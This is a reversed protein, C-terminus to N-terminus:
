GGNPKHKDKEEKKANPSSEEDWSNILPIKEHVSRMLERAQEPTRTIRPTLFVMLEVERSIKDKKKFAWGLVPISGLGPTKRTTDTQQRQIIGGLVATEGDRVMLDTKFNRTDLIAGGFLTEGERINSSETRIRLHVENSSNIRPTVELIIGVDRYQFTDNRGGTETNLSGSIFPVQAGVFLKGLENDAINLQPQALIKGDANKRLFQILVTVDSNASFVGSRLAGTGPLGAFVKKFETVADVKIGNDLDEGTFANPDSSYRVGLKDRFDSSVEIIRAEILVQPTPADLDNILKLIEPFYHLNSTIILSNSRRDPVVRVKGILDSIPRQAGTEGPRGFQGEQQGGLWPFYADEKTELEIGFSNQSQYNNSGPQQIQNNQQQQQQPQNVQRLPPSGGKAFLVNIGSAITTANAFNLTIRMTTEGAQSPSDLEKLVNEIASLNEPSNSTIIISNSYPEATIKVKGYLKSSRADKDSSDQMPFGYPDWYTRSQNPKKLFLENLVDAIDVASVYKMRYIKPALSTDSIPEDLTKILSEVDPIVAPPAQVIVTNRRRDAVVNIKKTDRGGGYGFIYYPYRSNSNQDQNLDQLQKAVDEADANKLEFPRIVKEQAEERDLGAILKELSKFNEETSLVILSNSRNNSSVEMRDRPSKGTMKQLLPQMERVLDEASVNKLPLVRITFDQPKETDLIELLGKIESMKSKPAVVILQNATKDPWIKISATPSGTSTPGSPSPSPTPSSDGMPMPIGNVIRMGSSRGSSSSSSSGSSSSGGSSNVQANLIQGLLGGVEEAESFKLRFFEVSIDSSSPVDLEKILDSALRLNDTYDTIILQNNREVIEVAAKDSLATRIKQQVDGPSVNKLTFIRVLKQRGEPLKDSDAFEPTSKPESGEPVILISKSTEVATFGELSLARYVLDIAERPTLGKSSIITLQCQVRPHKVVSKGTAKALWQAVMDINANQFSLQNDDGEMKTPAAATPTAAGPQNPVAGAVNPPPTNTNATAAPANTDVATAVPTANTSASPASAVGNTRIVAQRTISTPQAAATLILAASLAFTKAISLNM